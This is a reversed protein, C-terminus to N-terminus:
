HSEVIRIELDDFSKRNNDEYDILKLSLTAMIRDIDTMSDTFCFLDKTCSDLSESYKFAKKIIAEHIGLKREDPKSQNLNQTM